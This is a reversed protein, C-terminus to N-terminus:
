TSTAGTPTSSRPRTSSCARAVLRLVARGASRTASGCGAPPTPSTAGGVGRLHALHGVAHPRRRLQQPQGRPDPLRRRRQRRRRLPHRGVGGSGSSRASARHRDARRGAAPERLQLRLDVRRRRDARVRRRRPVRALHPTTGAVPTLSVAVIRSTFGEPLQLGNVDPPLLEGYPSDGPQVPAAPAALAAALVGPGLAMAMGMGSAGKLLQRRRMMVRETGDVPRTGARRRHVRVPSDPNVSRRHGSPHLGGMGHGAVLQRGCGGIVEPQVERRQEPSPHSGSVTISRPSPAYTHSSRPLRYRSPRAPSNTTCAPWPRWSIASAAPRCAAM